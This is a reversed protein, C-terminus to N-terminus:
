INCTLLNYVHYENLKIIEKNNLQISNTCSMKSLHSLIKDPVIDSFIFTFIHLFTNIESVLQYEKVKAIFVEWNFEDYLTILLAIEYLKKIDTYRGNDKNKASSTLDKLFAMIHFIIHEYNDPIFVKRGFLTTDSAKNFIIEELDSSCRIMQLHITRSKREKYFNSVYFIENLSNDTLAQNIKTCGAKQFYDAKNLIDVIENLNDGHYIFCIKKFINNKEEYIMQELAYGDFFIVKVDNDTFSDLLKIYEIRLPAMHVTSCMNIARQVKEYAKEDIDILLEHACPLLNFKLLYDYFTEGTSNNNMCHIIFTRLQQLLSNTKKNSEM